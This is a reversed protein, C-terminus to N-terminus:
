VKRVGPRWFPFYFFYFFFIQNPGDIKPVVHSYECDIRFALTNSDVHFGACDFLSGSQGKKRWLLTLIAPLREDWILTWTEIVTVLNTVVGTVDGGGAPQLLGDEDDQGAQRAEGEEHDDTEEQALELALYWCSLRLVIQAEGLYSSWSPGTLPLCDGRGGGGGRGERGPLQHLDGEQLGLQADGGRAWYQGAVREEYWAWLPVVGVRAWSGQM